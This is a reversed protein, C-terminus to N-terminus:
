LLHPAPPQSRAIVGAFVLAILSFSFWQIAYYLHPGNDLAPPDQRRPFRPLSSDPAQLISFPYVRYPLRARLAALDLRGWTTLGGHELPMGQGSPVPILYGEVDKRGPERFSDSAVRVADPSPVFGRDVMVATKEDDMVLPTVIEVGPVGAYERGRVVIDYAHDYRGRAWVRRGALASDLHDATLEVPPAAREQAAIANAARRERLRSVQWFGLRACVLAIVIFGAV